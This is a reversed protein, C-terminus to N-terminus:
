AVAVLHGRALDPRAAYYAAYFYRLRGVWGLLEIARTEGVAGALWSRLRRRTPLPEALVLRDIVSASRVRLLSWCPQGGNIPGFALALGSEGEPDRFLESGPEAAIPTRM